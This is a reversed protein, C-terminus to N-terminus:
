YGLFKLAYAYIPTGWFLSIVAGLVLFPGFPITAKRFSKKRWLILIIGFIGGTLFAGYLAIVINPFGLFLGLLFVLKIDGGGMSQKKLLLSFVLSIIIFFLFSIIGSLLNVVAVQPNIFLLYIVVATIALLLIKDPIIGDKLDTFFVVIFSSIIILYYFLNIISSQSNIIENSNTFPLHYITFLYTLSFMIGTSIEIIPYLLSLSKKCYRCKGHTSVFSLVPILDYWSLAKKCFDCHSRGKVVTENKPLRDVLVGLFSGIFLGALLL